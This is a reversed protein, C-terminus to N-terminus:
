RLNFFFEKRNQEACKMTKYKINLVIIFNSNCKVCLVLHPNNNKHIDLQRLVAQQFCNAEISFQRQVKTFMIGGGGWGM